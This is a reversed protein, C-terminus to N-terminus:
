PIPLTVVQHFSNIYIDFVDILLLFISRGNFLPLFLAALGLGVILVYETLAQGREAKKHKLANNRKAM